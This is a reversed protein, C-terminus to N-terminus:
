MQITYLFYKQGSTFTLIQITITHITITRITITHITITHITITHTCKLFASCKQAGPLLTQIPPPKFALHCWLWIALRRMLTSCWVIRKEAALYTATFHRHIPNCPIPACLATYPHIHRSLIPCPASDSKSWGFKDRDSWNDRPKILWIQAVSRLSQRWTTVSRQYGIVRGCRSCGIANYPCVQSGLFSMRTNQCFLHLSDLLNTFVMVTADLKWRSRNDIEVMIQM